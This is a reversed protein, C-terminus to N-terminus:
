KKLCLQDFQRGQDDIATIKFTKPTVVAQVFHPVALAQATHWECKPRFWEPFAGAGGCVIYNVGSEEDFKGNTIPHSREYVITHSNFVIDVGYKEFVPCLARMAPIEFDASIYPPYHFFVVKWKAKADQLDNVLFDYQEQGSQIRETNQNDVDVLSSSDICTFHVDSYDFSYYNQPNPFDNFEYFWKTKHENNGVCSYYPTNVLVETAPTFFYKSWDEYRHGDHVLDGTLLLFDPRYKKIQSFVRRSLEVDAYGGTEATVAFSFPTGPEVATVFTNIPSEVSQQEYTSVIKYHYTTGMELGTIRIKHICSNTSGHFQGPQEITVPSRFHNNLLEVPYVFVQSSAEVSTEWLVTIGNYTPMQLYPGKIISLM